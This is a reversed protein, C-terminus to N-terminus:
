AAQEKFFPQTLDTIDIDFFEAVIQLEDFLLSNLAM